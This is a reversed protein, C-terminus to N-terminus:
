AHNSSRARRRLRVAEIRAPDYRAVGDLWVEIDLASGHDRIYDISVGLRRAAEKADILPTPPAPENLLAHLAGRLSAVAEAADDLRALLMLQEGRSMTALDTICPLELNM